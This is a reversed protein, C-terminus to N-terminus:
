DSDTQWPSVSLFPGQNSKIMVSGSTHTWESLAFAGLPTEIQVDPRQQLAALEKALECATTKDIPTPALVRLDIDSQQNATEVSTALEFALSGTIGWSLDFSRFIHDIQTLTQWHPLPHTQQQTHWGQKAVLQEPTIHRFVAQSNVFSGHRQSRNFGRIGVAIRDAEYPARRVVVPRTILDKLHFWAPTQQNDALQNVWLLDHPHYALEM